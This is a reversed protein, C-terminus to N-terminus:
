AVDARPTTELDIRALHHRACIASCYYLQRMESEGPIRWHVHLWGVPLEGHTVSMANCYDRDTGVDDCTWVTVNSQKSM